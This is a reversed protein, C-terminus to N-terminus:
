IGWGMLSNGLENSWEAPFENLVNRNGLTRKPLVGEIMKFISSVRPHNEKGDTQSEKFYSMCSLEKATARKDADWLLCARVIEALEHMERRSFDSRHMLMAIDVGVVYPVNRLEKSFVWTGGPPCACGYTYAAPAPTGLVRLIRWIQDQESDGAFLPCFITAEVAVTAFAWMDVSSSYRPQRLLIEPARYWRTSVYNTYKSHDCKSRSLGFDTVKVVFSHGRKERPVVGDYYCSTASVLINDPKLDRHFFGHGHIHVLAALIQSLISKLTKASFLCNRARILHKLSQQMPEMVLHLQRTQGDIFIDYLQVLNEHSPVSLAFAVEKMKLCEEM